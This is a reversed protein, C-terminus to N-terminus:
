KDANSPSGHEEIPNYHAQTGVRSSSLCHNCDIV